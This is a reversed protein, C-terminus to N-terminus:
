TLEEAIKMARDRQEKLISNEEELKAIRNKLLLEQEHAASREINFQDSSNVDKKSTAVREVRTFSSTGEDEEVLSVHQSPLCCGDLLVLSDGWQTLQGGGCSGVVKSFNGLPQIRLHSDPIHGRGRGAMGLPFPTIMVSAIPCSTTTCRLQQRTVTDWLILTGDESGSVLMSGNRSIEISNLQSTHSRWISIKNSNQSSSGVDRRIEDPFEVFSVEYIAGNTSGLYAAHELPDVAICTLASQLTFKRLLRGSTMCRISMTHDLSCVYVFPDSTGAGICVQSIPLTHDSWLHLTEPTQGSLVQPVSWVSVLTDDSGCVMEAGRDSFAITTVKAHHSPWSLLLRGTSTDWLYMTGSDGGSACLAGDRSCAISWCKEPIFSKQRVQEKRWNWFHLIPKKLQCSVFYDRGLTAAARSPSANGKFSCLSTGTALDWATVSSDVSSFVLIIENEM